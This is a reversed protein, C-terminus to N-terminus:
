VVILLVPISYLSYLYLRKFIVFHNSEGLSTYCMQTKTNVHTKVSCGSLLSVEGSLLSVEGSLLSVEGSLLSVEGSLLSVEGSLLSVEGSM